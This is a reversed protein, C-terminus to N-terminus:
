GTALEERVVRNVLGGDLDEGMSKKLHGVV